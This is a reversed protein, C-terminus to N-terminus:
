RDPGQSEANSARPVAGLGRWSKLMSDRTEPMLGPLPEFRSWQGRYQLPALGWLLHPDVGMMCVHSQSPVLKGVTVYCSLPLTQM